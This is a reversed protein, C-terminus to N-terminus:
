GAGGTRPRTAPGLARAAFRLPLGPDDRRPGLRATVLEGALLAFSGLVTPHAPVRGLPALGASWERSALASATQHHAVCAPTMSSRHKALFRAHGDSWTAPSRTVRSGAHQVYRYVPTPVLALPALEACRLWLDWDESVVLRPDFRLEDGVVARRAVGFLIAPVNVWRM